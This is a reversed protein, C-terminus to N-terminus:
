RLQLARTVARDIRGTVPLGRDRQYRRLANRTETGFNGDVPGDYYGERALASQLQSVSSDAESYNYQSQAPDDSYEDASYSNDYYDDGYYPYTDYPYYGYGYGYPYFSPAFIVWSNNIWRCRHGRWFHDHRRDWHRQWNGGHRAVIAGGSNNNLRRSQFATTRGPGSFRASNLAISRPRTFGANFRNSALSPGAGTYVRNRSIAASSVRSAPATFHRTPASLRTTSSSAHSNWRSGAQAPQLLVLSAITALGFIGIIKVGGVNSQRGAERCYLDRARFPMLLAPSRVEFLDQVDPVM